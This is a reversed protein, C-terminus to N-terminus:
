TARFRFLLYLADLRAGVVTSVVSWLGRSRKLIGEEILDLMLILIVWVGLM